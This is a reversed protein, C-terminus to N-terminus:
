ARSPASALIRVRRQLAAICRKCRPFNGPEGIQATAPGEYARGCLTGCLVWEGDAVFTFWHPKGKFPLIAWGDSFDGAERMGAVRIDPCPDFAVVM